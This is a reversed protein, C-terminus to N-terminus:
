EDLCGSAVIAMVFALLQNNTAELRRARMRARQGGGTELVPLGEPTPAAEPGFLLGGFLRGEFLRGAFLRGRM